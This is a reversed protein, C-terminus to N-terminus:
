KEMLRRRQVPYSTPPNLVQNLQRENELGFAEMIEADTKGRSKMERAKATRIAIRTDLEKQERKRREAEKQREIRKKYRAPKRGLFIDRIDYSYESFRHGMSTEGDDNTFVGLDLLGSSVAINDRFVVRENQPVDLARLDHVTSREIINALDVFYEHDIDGAIFSEFCRALFVPKDLIDLKEITVLLHEGVRRKFEPSRDIKRSFEKRDTKSVQELAFLFRLIKKYFIRDSISNTVSVGKAIWGIFPIDKLLGEDIVRDIAFEAIEAPLELGGSKAVTLSLKESLSKEDIKKEMIESYVDIPQNYAYHIHRYM